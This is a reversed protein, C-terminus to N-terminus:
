SAAPLFLNPLVKREWEDVKDRRLLITKTTLKCEEPAQKRARLRRYTSYSINFRKLFDRLKM